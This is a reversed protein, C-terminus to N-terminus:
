CEPIPDWNFATMDPAVDALMADIDDRGSTERVLLGECSAAAEGAMRVLAAVHSVGTQEQYTLAVNQVDVVDRKTLWELFTYLDDETEFYPNMTQLERRLLNSRAPYEKCYRRIQRSLSVSEVQTRVLKKEM